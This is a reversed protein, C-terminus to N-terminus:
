DFFGRDLLENYVRVTENYNIVFIKQQLKRIEEIEKPDEEPLGLEERFKESDYEILEATGEDIEKSIEALKDSEDNSTELNEKYDYGFFTIENIIASAAGYEDDPIYAIEYGLIKEWPTFLLSYNALIPEKMAQKISKIPFLKGRNQCESKNILYADLWHFLITQNNEDYDCDITDKVVMYFESSVEIDLNEIQNLFHECLAKARKELDYGNDQAERICVVSNKFYDEYHRQCLKYRDLSLLFDKVIM